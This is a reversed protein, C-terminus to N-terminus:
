RTTRHKEGLEFYMQQTAHYEMETAKIEYRTKEIEKSVNETRALMEVHRDLYESDSDGESLRHDLARAQLLDLDRRKEQLM